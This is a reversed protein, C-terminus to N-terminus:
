ITNVKKDITQMLDNFANEFQKVGQQQLEMTAADLDIGMESLPQLRQM